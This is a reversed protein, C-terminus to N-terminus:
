TQTYGFWSENAVDPSTSSKMWGLLFFAISKYAGLSDPDIFPITLPLSHFLLILAYSLSFSSSSTTSLSSASLKLPFSAASLSLISRPSSQSALPHCLGKLFDYGFHSVVLRQQKQLLVFTLIPLHKLLM